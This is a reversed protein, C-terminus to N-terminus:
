MFYSYYMIEIYSRVSVILYWLVMLVVLAIIGIVAGLMYYRLSALKRSFSRGRSLEQQEEHERQRILEEYRRQCSPCEALHEQIMEAVNEATLGDCYSVLLDQIIGCSIQTNLKCDAQQM